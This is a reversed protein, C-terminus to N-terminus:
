DKVFDENELLLLLLKNNNDVMVNPQILDRYMFDLTFKTPRM